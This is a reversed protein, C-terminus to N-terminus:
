PILVTLIFALILSIGFFAVLKMIQSEANFGFSDYGKAGATEPYIKVPLKLKTLM